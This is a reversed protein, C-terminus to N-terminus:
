ALETSAIAVRDPSELVPLGNTVAHGILMWKRHEPTMLEAWRGPRGGGEITPAIHTYGLANQANPDEDVSGQGPQYGLPGGQGVAVLKGREMFPLVVTTDPNAPNLVEAERDYTYITVQDGTDQSFAGSLVEGNSGRVYRRFTISGNGEAVTAMANAPNFRAADITDPHAIIRANRVRRRLLRVDEWFGSNAESYADGGAVTRPTLINAAPIGYDVVLEKGNFLWNIQGTCFVQGRLWEMLDLHPQVIVKDLFNLAERALAETTNGGSLQLQQMMYQLHRLTAENLQVENAFKATQEMFTSIEVLGGPPYPSDMGVLGAMTARVTMSGRDINYTPMNREPLLTNFLYSAPTRAENAVRFVGAQGGLAAIAATFDLYM